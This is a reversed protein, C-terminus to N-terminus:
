RGCRLSSGLLVFAHAGEIEIVAIGVVIDRLVQFDIDRVLIRIEFGAQRGPRADEVEAAAAAAVAFVEQLLAEVDDGDVARGGHAATRFGEQATGDPAQEEGVEVIDGLKVADPGAGGKQMDRLVLEVADHAPHLAGQLRLAHQVGGELVALAFAGDVASEEGVVALLSQVGQGAEGQDLVPDGFVVPRLVGAFHPQSGEPAFGSGAVEGRNKEGKVMGHARGRRSGM